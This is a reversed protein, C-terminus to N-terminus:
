EVSLFIIKNNSLCFNSSWAWIILNKHWGGNEPYPLKAKQFNKVLVSPCKIEELSAFTSLYFSLAGM